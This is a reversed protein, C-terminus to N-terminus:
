GSVTVNSYPPTPEAYSNRVSGSTITRSMDLSDSSIFHLRTSPGEIEASAPPAYQENCASDKMAAQMVHQHETRNLRLGQKKRPLVPPTPKGPFREAILPIVTSEFYERVDKAM